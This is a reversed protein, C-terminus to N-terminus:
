PSMEGRLIDELPIGYETEALRIAEREFVADWEPSYSMVGSDAIEKAGDIAYCAKEHWRTRADEYLQHLLKLKKNM